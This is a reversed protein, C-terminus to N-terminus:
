QLLLRTLASASNHGKSLAKLDNMVLRREASDRGQPKGLSHLIKEAREQLHTM